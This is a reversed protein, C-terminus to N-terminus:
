LSPRRSSTEELRGYVVDKATFSQRPRPMQAPILFTDAHVHAAVPLALRVLGSVSRPIYKVGDKAVSKALLQAYTAISM